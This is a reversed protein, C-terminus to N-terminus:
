PETVLVALSWPALSLETTALWEMVRYRPPRSRAPRGRPGDARWAYERASYSWVEVHGALPVDDSEGAGHLVIRVRRARAADRNVFLISWRGDVRRVPYVSVLSDPGSDPATRVSAPYIAHPGGRPDTWAHTLLWAASYRALRDRARGAYDTLLILNNGWSNCDANRELGRPEYGYLYARAGDGGRGLFTGVIDADLLAGPLDVEARGAFASYGYETMYRPLSDPLGGDRLGALARALMGPARALQPAVPVCLSDFPYWEFSFFRLAGAAGSRDLYDLFRGVWTRRPGAVPRTPWAILEANTLDQWSPGGLPMASDVATLARAARVYLAGYDEPTIMQGDPEEGLEVGLLPYRRARLYRLLAAGNEPTDYLVGVPVLMPRGRALPSRAVLDVGPQEVDPDRDAARHWPDTSSVVVRTQREPSPAHRVADRLRTSDLRGAFIERIAFGVSDRPDVSGPLATGSSASLIIRLYRTPVAEEALRYTRNGGASDVLTGRAFPQWTGVPNEEIEPVTDGVWYEVTFRTAYPHGWAIRLASVPRPRGFDLVLWQPHEREPRGTFRPALYPNSKWFSATDDDTVRSWGDENAQDVTNGRRPLRYGYSTVIPARLRDDSTWYGQHHAADSWRGRPNWHWAENGLETRLRYTLPGLGAALMARENAPTFIQKTDGSTHGDIAAGLALRPDFVALRRATDTEIIVTARAPPAQGAM